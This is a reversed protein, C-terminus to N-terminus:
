TTERPELTKRARSLRNRKLTCPRCQKRFTGMHPYFESLPKTQHCDGCTKEGDVCVSAAKRCTVSIEEMDFPEFNDFYIDETERQYPPDCRNCKFYRDAPLLTHCKTCHRKPRLREREAAEAEQTTKLNDDCPGCVTYDRSMLRTKNCLECFRITKKRGM